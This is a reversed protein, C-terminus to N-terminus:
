GVEPGAIAIVLPSTKASARGSTMRILDREKVFGRDSLVSTGVSSERNLDIYVRNDGLQSLVEDLLTEAQQPDKAVIPGVYNARTGRRALAYGSLAGDCCAGASVFLYFYGNRKVIYPAEYRDSLAIQVQSGRDSTMGDSSLARASIGGNFSGYFIYKQDGDQIIAPDITPRMGHGPVPEPEVVPIPSANWPGTPTNSTAVFIAAGGARTNSVAYYLYYKGNFYQIDPAWLYGDGAVWRPKSAFVDGVYTWNVLDTSKSISM